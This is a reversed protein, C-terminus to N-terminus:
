EVYSGALSTLALCALSNETPEIPEFIHCHTGIIPFTNEEVNIQPLDNRLTPRISPSFETSGNSGLFLM